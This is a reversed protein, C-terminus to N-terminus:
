LNKHEGPKPGVDMDTWPRAGGWNQKNIPRRDVFM